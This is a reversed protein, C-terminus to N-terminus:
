RGVVHARGVHALILRLFGPADLANYLKLKRFAGDGPFARSAMSGTYAIADDKLMAATAGGALILDIPAKLKRGRDLVAENVVRTATASYDRERDSGNGTYVHQETWRAQKLDILVRAYLDKGRESRKRENIYPGLIDFSRFIVRELPLYPFSSRLEITQRREERRGERTEFCKRVLVDVQDFRGGGRVPDLAEFRISAGDQRPARDAFHRLLRLFWAEALAGMIGKAERDAPSRPRGASDARGLSRARHAEVAAAVLKRAKESNPKLRHVLVRHENLSADGFPFGNEADPLCRRIPSM